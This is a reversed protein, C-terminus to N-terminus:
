KETGRQTRAFPLYFALAAEVVQSLSARSDSRRLTTVENDLEDRLTRSLNATTKVREEDHVKPRGPGRTGGM